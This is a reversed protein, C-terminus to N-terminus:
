YMFRKRKRRYSSPSPSSLYGAHKDMQHPMLLKNLIYSHPVNNKLLINVLPIYEAVNEPREGPGARRTAVNLFDIISYIMKPKDKISVLRYNKSICFSSNRLLEKALNKAANWRKPPFANIIENEIFLSMENWKEEKSSGCLKDGGELINENTKRIKSAPLLVFAGELHDDLVPMEAMTYSPIDQTLKETYGLEPYVFCYPVFSNSDSKFLNQVRTLALVQNHTPSSAVSNLKLVVTDQQKEALALIAKLYTKTEPCLFFTQILHQALRTTNTKGCLLVIQHVAAILSYLPSSLCSQTIVFVSALKSHHCAYRIIFDIDKNVRLVDDLILLDGEQFLSTAQSLEELSINIVELDSFPGGSVQDSESEGLWDYQISFDRENCNCYLLRKIERSAEFCHKRHRVVQDLFYTKGSNSVCSVLTVSCRPFPSYNVLGFDHVPPPSPISLPEPTLERQDVLPESQSVVFSPRPLSFNSKRRLEFTQPQTLLDVNM